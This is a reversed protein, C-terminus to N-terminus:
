PRRFPAAALCALGGALSRLDPHRALIGIHSIRQESAPVRVADRHPVGITVLGYGLRLTM